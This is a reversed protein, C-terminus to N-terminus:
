IREPDPIDPIISLYKKLWNVPSSIKLNLNELRRIVIQGPFVDSKYLFILMIEKHYEPNSRLKTSM